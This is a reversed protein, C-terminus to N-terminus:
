RLKRGLPRSGSRARSTRGASKPKAADSRAPRGMVIREEARVSPEPSKVSRSSRAALAPSSASSTSPPPPSALSARPASAAPSTRQAVRAHSPHAARRRAPQSCPLKELRAEEEEPTIVLPPEGARQRAEDDADYFLQAIVLGKLVLDGRQNEAWVDIDIVYTGNGEFRRDAVRGRCVLVDGPWVFKVFRSTFRRLRAGRLWDVTLEGVFGMALMGPVHVSPFGANKALPEDLYLPDFDGSVVAYRAIRTRDIPPKVLPPLEDGVEVAEFYLQRALLAM